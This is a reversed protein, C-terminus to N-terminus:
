FRCLRRAEGATKWITELVERGVLDISDMAWLVDLHEYEELVNVHVVEVHPERGKDFRRLLRKGDVLQDRGAIWLALPPVRADFWAVRDIEASSKEKVKDSRDEEDEAELEEKTNLICGQKAFCHKEQGLWWWMAEASIYTPAFLFGRNRLDRDWRTDSWKFMYSFVIYGMLGFVKVPLIAMLAIMSQIFAHIGFVRHWWKHSLLGFARFVWSQLLPGAYIAPALLCAVSMRRGLEPTFYKSLSILTQTTGQSHAVLAVKEFGTVACVRSVLAPLDRTAMHRIDWAWMNPDSAKLHAHQPTMGCRNNGLWVDLGQKALFFALSNDDTCCFAGSSQLLGHLLMVPFQANPLSRAKPLNALPTSVRIARDRESYGKFTLPNYLHWLEIIFGDDTQVLFTESELGVRRAYVGVDPKHPDKGGESPVFSSSQPQTIDEGTTAAAAKEEDSLKKRGKRKGHKQRIEWRELAEKREAKRTNELEDLPRANKSRSTHRFQSGVACVVLVSFGITCCVGSLVRHAFYRLSDFRKPPGYEPIAPFLLDARASNDAEFHTEVQPKPSQVSIQDSAEQYSSCQAEVNMRVAFLRPAIKIEGELGAPVRAGTHLHAKEFQQVKQASGFTLALKRHTKLVEPESNRFKKHTQAILLDDSCKFRRVMKVRTLEM